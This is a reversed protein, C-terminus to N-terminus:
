YSEWECLKRSPLLLVYPTFSWPSWSCRWCQRSGREQQWLFQDWDMMIVTGCLSTSMPTYDSHITSARFAQSLSSPTVFGSLFTYPSHQHTTLFLNGRQLLIRISTKHDQNAQQSNDSVWLPKLFNEVGSPQCALKLGVPKLVTHNSISAICFFQPQFGVIWLGMTLSCLNARDLEPVFRDNLNFEFRKCSDSDKFSDISIQCFFNLVSTKCTFCVPFILKISMPRNYKWSEIKDLSSCIAAAFQVPVYFM